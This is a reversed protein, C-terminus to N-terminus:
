TPKTKHILNTTKINKLHSAVATAEKKIGQSKALCVVHPKGTPLGFRM